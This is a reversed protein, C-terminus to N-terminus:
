DLQHETIRKCLSDFNKGSEFIYIVGEAAGVAKIANDLKQYIPAM